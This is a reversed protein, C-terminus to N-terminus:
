WYLRVFISAGGDVVTCISVCRWRCYYLYQRVEIETADGELKVRGLEEGGNVEDHLRRLRAASVLPETHECSSDYM